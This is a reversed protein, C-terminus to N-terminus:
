KDIIVLTEMSYLAEPKRSLLISFPDFYLFDDSHSSRSLHNPSISTMMMMTTLGWKLLEKADDEWGVVEGEELDVLDVVMGQDMGMVAEEGVVMDLGEVESVEVM